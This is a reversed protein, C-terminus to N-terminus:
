VRRNHNTVMPVWAGAVARQRVAGRAARIRWCIATSMSFVRPIYAHHISVPTFSFCFDPGLLTEFHVEGSGNRM